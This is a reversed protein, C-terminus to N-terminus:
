PSVASSINTDGVIKGNDYKYVSVFGPGEWEPIRLAIEMKSDNDIDAYVIDVNPDQYEDNFDDYLTYLTEIYNQEKDFVHYSFIHINKKTGKNAGDVDIELIAERHSIVLYIFNNDGNLDIKEIEDIYSYQNDYLYNSIKEVNKGLDSVREYDRPILNFDKSISITSLNGVYSYKEYVEEKGFIGEVKKKLGQKNFTYYTKSYKKNNEDNLELFDIKQLQTYETIPFGDYVVLYDLKSDPVKKDYPLNNMESYKIIESFSRKNNNEIINNTETNNNKIDLENNTNILNNRESIVNETENNETEINNNIIANKEEKKDTCGTLIFLVLLMIMFVNLIVIRKQM